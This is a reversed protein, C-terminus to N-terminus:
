FFNAVAQMLEDEIAGSPKNNCGKLAGIVHKFCKDAQETEFFVKVREIGEWENDDIAGELMLRVHRSIYHLAHQQYVAEPIQAPKFTCKTCFGHENVSLVKLGCSECTICKTRYLIINDTFIIAKFGDFAFYVTLLPKGSSNSPRIVIEGIPQKYYVFVNFDAAYYHEMNPKCGDHNPQMLSFAHNFDVVTEVCELNNLFNKLHYTM